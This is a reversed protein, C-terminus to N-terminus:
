VYNQIENQKKEKKIFKSIKKRTRKDVPLPPQKTPKIGSNFLLANEQYLKRFGVLSQPRFEDIIFPPKKM